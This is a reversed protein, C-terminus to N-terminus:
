TALAIGAILTDRMDVLRGSAKRKASLEAARNAANSDFHAVRDRLDHALLEEFPAQLTQKRQGEPLLALGYRAKFLTISNMWISEAPQDNLWAIVQLDPRQQMLASIVNTDLIIV